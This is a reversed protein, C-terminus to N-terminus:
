SQGSEEVTKNTFARVLASGDGSEIYKLVVLDGKETFRVSTKLSLPAVYLRDPAGELIFEVTNEAGNERIRLIKGEVSK